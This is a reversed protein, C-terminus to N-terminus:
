FSFDKLNRLKINSFNNDTKLGINGMNLGINGVANRANKALAELRDLNLYLILSVAIAILLFIALNLYMVQQNSEQYLENNYNILKNKTLLNENMKNLDKQKIAVGANLEDEIKKKQQLLQSYMQHDGKVRQFRENVTLVKKMEMDRQLQLDNKVEEKLCTAEDKGSQMCKIHLETKSLAQTKENIDSRLNKIKQHAVRKQDEQYKGPNTTFVALIKSFDIGGASAGTSGSVSGNVGTGGMGGNLHCNEQTVNDYLTQNFDIPRGDHGVLWCEGEEKSTLASPRAIYQCAQKNDLNCLAGLSAAKKMCDDMDHLGAIKTFYGKTKSIEDVKANSICGIKLHTSMYIVITIGIYLICVYSKIMLLIMLM